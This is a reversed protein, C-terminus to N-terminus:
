SPDDMDENTPVVAGFKARMADMFDLADYESVFKAIPRRVGNEILCLHVGLRSVEADDAEDDMLIGAYFAEKGDPTMVPSALDGDELDGHENEFAVM